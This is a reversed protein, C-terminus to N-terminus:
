SRATSLFLQELLLTSGTVVREGARLGDLVPVMDGRPPGVRVTRREYRGPKEEVFVVHSDGSLLVASTPVAVGSVPPQSLEITVLMEGKLRGDPNDVAGRVKLTRTSPDMAGAIRTVRGRFVRDPWAQAHVVLAAGERVLPLEREPVDLMVWLRSPDTVVFLPAVLQPANALMQDPRVEQGPTISRDVIRGGLPTKLPLLQDVAATDGGYLQLRVRARQYDARARAVDAEAQEVEKRAVIGHQMLDDQRELTREALALDTSARRADAQAQGFDPAAILALAEGPRVQQGVDRLIRTVRGAFPSFVRVTVDENWTLRGNLSVSAASDPVASAVTLAPLHPSHAALVLHVGNVRAEAEPTGQDAAAGGCGACLAAFCAGILPSRYRFLSFSARV